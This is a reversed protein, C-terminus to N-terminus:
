MGEPLDPAPEVSGGDPGDVVNEGSQRTLLQLSDLMINPSLAVVTDVEDFWHRTGRRKVADSSTAQVIDIARSGRRIGKHSFADTHFEAPWDETSIRRASAPGGDGVKKVTHAARLNAMDQEKVASVLRSMQEADVAAAVPNSVLVGDADHSTAAGLWNALYSDRSTESQTFIDEVQIAEFHPQREILQHRGLRVFDQWLAAISYGTTLSIRGAASHAAGDDAVEYVGCSVTKPMAGVMGLFEEERDVARGFPSTLFGSLARSWLLYQSYLRAMRRTNEVAVPLLALLRDYEYDAAQARHQLQFLLKSSQWFRAFMAILWVVVIVPIVLLLSLGPLVTVYLVVALVLLLLMVLTAIRAFFGLKKAVEEASSTDSRAAVKASDLLDRLQKEHHELGDTIMGGLRGAFSEAWPAAFAALTRANGDAGSRWGSQEDDSRKALERQTFRVAVVDNAEIGERPIGVLIGGSPLWPRPLRPAIREPPFYRPEGDFLFFDASAQRSGSLLAFANDFTSSWFHRQSVAAGGGPMTVGPLQSVAQAVRELGEERHLAQQGGDEATVGGVNLILGSEAGLLSRQMTAAVGAKTRHVLGKVADGPARLMATFMFSFFMKLLKGLSIETQKPRAPMKPPEALNIMGRLERVRRDLEESSSTALAKPDRLTRINLVAERVRDAIASADMRRHNSRGLRIDDTLDTDDFPSTNAGTWLGVVSAAFAAAHAALDAVAAPDTTDSFIPLGPNTITPATEPAAVLTDWGPWARLDDTWAGGHWAILLDIAGLRQKLAETLRHAASHLRERATVWEISSGVPDLMVLRVDPDDMIDIIRQTRAASTATPPRTTVVNASDPGRMLVEAVSVFAFSSVWGSASWDSLVAAVEAAIPDEHDFIILTTTTM